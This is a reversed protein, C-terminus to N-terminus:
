FIRTKKGCSLLRPKNPIKPHELCLRVKFPATKTLHRSMFSKEFIPAIINILAHHVIRDRFDAKSIKRTKPDRLIFTKLPMPQYTDEKFEYYLDILNKEADEEFKIIDKHKTKGKRAKKWALM